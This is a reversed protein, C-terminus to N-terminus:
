KSYCKACEVDETYRMTIPNYRMNELSEVCVDARMYEHCKPCETVVNVMSDNVSSEDIGYYAM